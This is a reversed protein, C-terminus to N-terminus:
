GLIDGPEGGAFEVHQAEDGGAVGVALDPLRQEDAVAGHHAMDLVDQGLKVDVRAGGGGRLRHPQPDDSRGVGWSGCTWLSDGGYGSGIRGGRLIRSSGSPM